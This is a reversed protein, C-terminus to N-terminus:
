SFGSLALGVRQWVVNDAVGRLVICIDSATPCLSWFIIRPGVLPRVVSGCRGVVSPFWRPSQVRDSLLSRKSMQIILLLKSPTGQVMNFVGEPFGAQVFLDAARQMTLPVKESPKLMVANGMVLAIPVTRMPAMFPFNFPAISAVVGLADRRDVCTVASSVKLSQGQALQPLSCAHEVTENGKAVKYFFVFTTPLVVNSFSDKLFSFMFRCCNRGVM